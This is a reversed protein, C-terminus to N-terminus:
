YVTFQQELISRNMDVTNFILTFEKKMKKKYIHYEMLLINSDFRRIIISARDDKNLTPLGTFIPLLYNSYLSKGALKCFGGGESAKMAILEEYEPIARLDEVFLEVPLQTILCEYKNWATILKNAIANDHKIVPDSINYATGLYIGTSFGVPVISLTTDAANVIVTSDAVLVEIFECVKTACTVANKIITSIDKNNAM